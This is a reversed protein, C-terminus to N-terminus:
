VSRRRVGVLGLLGSGLLWLAGPIPVSSCNRGAIIDITADGNTNFTFSGGGCNGCFLSAVDINAFDTLGFVLGDIGVGAYVYSSLPDGQFFMMDLSATATTNSTTVDHFDYYVTGGAFAFSGGSLGSTNGGVYANNSAALSFAGPGADDFASGTVAASGQAYSGSGSYLSSYDDDLVGNDTADNFIALIDAATVTLSGNATGTLYQGSPDTFTYTSGWSKGVGLLVLMLTIGFIKKLDKM